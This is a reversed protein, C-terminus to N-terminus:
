DRWKESKFGWVNYGYFTDHSSVEPHEQHPEDISSGSSTLFRRHLM